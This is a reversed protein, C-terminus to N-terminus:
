PDQVISSSEHEAEGSLLPELLAPLVGGFYIRAIDLASQGCRRRLTPDARLDLLEQVLEVKLVADMLPRKGEFGNLSLLLKSTTGRWVMFRAGAYVLRWTTTQPKQPSNVDAGASALLRVLSLPVTNCNAGLAHLPTIGSDEQHGPDAKALLLVRVM